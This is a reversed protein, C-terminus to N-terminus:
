HVKNYSANHPTLTSVLVPKAQGAAARETSVLSHSSKIAYRLSLVADHIQHCVNAVRQM